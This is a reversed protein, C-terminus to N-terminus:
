GSRERAHQGEHRDEPPHRLPVVRQSRTGDPLQPTREVASAECPHREIEAQEHQKMVGEISGAPVAALVERLEMGNDKVAIQSEVVFRSLEARVLGADEREAAGEKAATRDARV